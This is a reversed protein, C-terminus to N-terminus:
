EVMERAAVLLQQVLVLPVGPSAALGFAQAIQGAEAATVVGRPLLEAYVWAVTALAPPSDVAARRQLALTLAQCALSLAEDPMDSAFLADAAQLKRRAAVLLPPDAPAQPRQYVTKEPEAADGGLHGMTRLLAYTQLDLIAVKAAGVSVEGAVLADNPDSRTVLALLGTPGVVIRELRGGLRQSLSTVAAAVEPLEAEPQQAQGPRPGAQPQASEEPQLPPAGEASPPEAAAEAAVEIDASEEAESQPGRAADKQLDVVARMAEVLAASSLGVTDDGEAAMVQMFLHQKGALIQGVRQEYSSAAVVLVILVNRKQGLRHIRALRQQLVAPNWPLDLNILVDACQLNLGTGGADTSLFVRVSPDNEFAEILAGRKDVAVAGHLRVTGLGLARATEEAMRTMREWQSFVVVKRGGTVALEDLLRGLEDLKPSGVTVKDILGAANCAMRAQLLAALALKEEPPTLKRQQMITAYNGATSMFGDHFQRQKPTMGVEHTAETREPLQDAIVERSRRLMVGAVRRRLVTLNRYGVLKNREDRVMYDIEFRWLPGLVHPDVLQMLSYLDSLRNELPTGTLVFAFRSPISKVKASVKTAWNKIRQAEDVILLDPTLDTCFLSQNRAVQEYHAIHFPAPQQWGAGLQKPSGSLTYADLGTFKRIEKTWGSKLSAPCVILVRRVGEHEMLWRAAAIAQLTKGVGMDDALLARGQSALMAVGTRQYPFLRARLWDPQGQCAALEAEIKGRRLAKADQEAARLAWGRADDGLSLVRGDQPSLRGASREMAFWAGPLTGMLSGDAGFHQRVLTAVTLPLTGRVHVRVQPPEASQWDLWVIAIASQRPTPRNRRVRHLVAEIHKCTGLGNVAFDPCNCTNLPDSLHRIQVRYPLVAEATSVVSRAAWTGFDPDGSVLEVRVARRGLDEREAKARDRASMAAHKTTTPRDGHALLVAIAHTCLDKRWSPSCDCSAVVQASGDLSLTVTYSTDFSDGSVDGHLILTGADDALGVHTVYHKHWLRMAERLATESCLPALADLDLQFPDDEPAVDAKTWTPKTPKAPKGSAAPQSSPAATVRSM